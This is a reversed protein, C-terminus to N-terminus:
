CTGVIIDGLRKRCALHGSAHTRNKTTRCSRSYRCCRSRCVWWRRYKTLFRKWESDIFRCSPCIRQSLFEVQRPDLEIQERTQERCRPSHERARLEDIANPAITKRDSMTCDIRM